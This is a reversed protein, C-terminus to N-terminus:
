QKQEKKKQQAKTKIKIVENYIATYKEEILPYIEYQALNSPKIINLKDSHITDIYERDKIRTVCTDLDELTNHITKIDKSKLSYELAQFFVIIATFPQLSELTMGKVRLIYSQIKNENLIREEKAQELDKNLNSIEHQLKDNLVQSEEKRKHYNSELEKIKAEISENLKNISNRTDISNYIQVGVLITACAGMFGAMIGVFSDNTFYVDVRLFATIIAIVSLGISWISLIKNPATKKERYFYISCGILLIFALILTIPFFICEDINYINYLM